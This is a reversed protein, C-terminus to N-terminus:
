GKLLNIEIKSEIRRIFEACNILCSGITSSNQMILFEFIPKPTFKVFHDVIPPLFHKLREKYNCYNNEILEGALGVKVVQNKASFVRWGVSFISAALLSASRDVIFTSFKYLDQSQNKDLLSLLNILKNQSRKFLNQFDKESDVQLSQFLELFESLETIKLSNPQIIWSEDLENYNDEIYLRLLEVIYMGGTM